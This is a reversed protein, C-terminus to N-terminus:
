AEEVRYKKHTTVVTTTTTVETVVTGFEDHESETHQARTSPQGADGDYSPLSGSGLAESSLTLLGVVNVPILKWTFWPYPVEDTWFKVQTFSNLLLEEVTDALM